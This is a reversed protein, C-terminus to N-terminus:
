GGDNEGPIPMNRLRALEVTMEKAKEPNMKAMLPALKREKMREAVMLLTDMDLEEFIRAADKPKMNEYIKVLSAMKKDQQKEHKVLLGEITKRLNQLEGVKKDIRQEAAVLLANREEIERARMEIEERREALQQLLDIEAQTLLTPDDAFSPKEEEEEAYEDEEELEEDAAAEGEEEGEKAAAQDAADEAPPENRPKQQAEASAIGVGQTLAGYGDWIDNIKVTLLMLAVFITIPLVRINALFRM